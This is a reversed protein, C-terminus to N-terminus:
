APSPAQASFDTPVTLLGKDDCLRLRESMDRGAVARGIQAPCAEAM